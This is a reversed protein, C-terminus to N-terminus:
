SEAVYHRERSDPDIWVRMVRQSTPDVFRETTPLWHPEAKKSEGHRFRWWGAKRAEPRHERELAPLGTLAAAGENSEYLEGLRRDLEDAEIHGAVYHRGLERAAAEHDV